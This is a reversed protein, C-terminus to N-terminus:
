HPKGWIVLALGPVFGGVVRAHVKGLSFPEKFVDVFRQPRTRGRDMSKPVSFLLRFKPIEIGQYAIWKPTRYGAHFIVGVDYPM